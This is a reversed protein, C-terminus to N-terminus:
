SGHHMHSMPGAGKLRARLFFLFAAPHDGYYPRIAAPVSYLTLNGGIGTVLWRVLNVDRTYGLTYALVRFTSGATRALQEELQPQDDFLEDKDVLEVRGTVYNRREFQLVSEALYSNLNRQQATKHNRGWIVSSAWNGRPLPRNYTLSATSRIIDGPEAAEPHNLRGASIQAAWNDNPTWTLRAAWSDIMGYDINWRNENPEAGHFGSAEIRFSRRVLGATVVENSIHTSDQLHHSLTAQPLEMASIRHPFAVPGLAPDGVPAFYLLLSTSESLPRTYRASLEMFLDHPHQADVLPTGYATEGTQFLLPYRRDTITAPDLSLMSRFELTGRGASHAATGMFWNPAFLKDHGRPGTEQGEVLFAVGHFMFAWGGLRKHIMDMPSSRPNVSTGSAAHEMPAAAPAPMDMGPMSPHDEHQARCAFTLVCAIVAPKM